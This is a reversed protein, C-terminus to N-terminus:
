FMYSFYFKFLFLAALQNGVFDQFVPLEVDAYVSVKHYDFEIGPSLLIREYGSDRGGDPDDYIGGSAYDGYDTTRVSGLVQALPVIHVGGVTWGKYYVGVATDLETGPHYQDQTLVPVDLLGQMFLTFSNNRTLPHRYYGGLLIDTSGTGLESDRDIDDYADNHTWDGTPLKLGFQVGSSMDDSFGTYYGELRIDSLASWRLTVEQNGTPGGLTKFERFDYPIEAQVGWDRNFMYQLGTMTFDTRIEQDGNGSVSAPGNGHWNRDQDQFDFEEWLMGGSGEPLMLGTGVDFVGCGCACAHAIGPALVLAGGLSVSMIVKKKIKM